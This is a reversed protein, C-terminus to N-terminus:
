FISEIENRLWVHFPDQHSRNHWLMKTELVIKQVPLEVVELNFNNKYFCALREPATLILDSKLLVLPPTLFNNFKAVIKRQLGRSKLVDDIRSQSNIPVDIKIHDFELYKKLDQRGMLFPHNKRVLCVQHDKGIKKLHFSKSPEKIFAAIAIDYEGLELEKLPVEDNLSITRISANPAKECLIRFLKEIVIVEFYTTCAIVVERSYDELNFIPKSYIQETTLLILEIKPLLAKARETLGYGKRTRIFLLDQFEERLRKLQYSLAPQSLHLRKASISLSREKALVCFIKLLNLDKNTIDM